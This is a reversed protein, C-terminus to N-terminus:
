RATIGALILTRSAQYPSGLRDLAEATALLAARNDEALAVARATIAAAVPNHASDTTARAIAAAATPVEALVSAEAMLASQWGRWLGTHFTEAPPPLSTLRAHAQDPLNQHLLYLADFFSTFTGEAGRRHDATLDQAIRQWAAYEKADGRMGYIAAAAYAGRSLTAHVPRGARQWGTRFQDALEIAEDWDGTLADVILLRASALHGDEQAFPLQLVQEAYSRAAALDGNALATDAAASLADAYEYGIPDVPAPLATLLDVRRRATIMAAPLARHAVQTETLRDLAVSLDAPDSSRKALEVAQASNQVSTPDSDPLRYVSAIAIRAQAVPDSGALDTARHLWSEVVDPDPPTAIIGAGRYVLEVATALDRAADAPRGGAVAAEAAAQLLRLADDGLHRRHAVEAARHLAAAAIEDSPALGAAQEYRHQSEQPRGLRFTVAGLRDALVYADAHHATRQAAWSLAARLDNLGADGHALDLCWRMHRIASEDSEGSEALQGAGYQRVTELARHRSDPGYLTPAVLSQDTLRALCGAVAAADVPPWAAVERAAAITFPDPFVSIRRLLAQDVPDLLQYSWDLTARMSHHRVDNRRRSTLLGLSDSLSAQLGNLGLSPVRAAALEIALAIGDLEACIQEVRTRDLVDPAGAAAAREGFLTAADGGALSLGPVVFVKEFPLLLRSRSTALVALQDGGALLREVLEAVSDVLHECNDLVLLTHRTSFWTILADEASRTRQPVGLTEAVALALMDGSAVPVLDVYCAGDPFAPALDAAVAVALRTKGVGGPGVATVLRHGRVVAALEAREAARGIFGTLPQPLRGGFPAPSTPTLVNVAVRGLVRRNEVALKRLLSAVHTEVTRVSIFLQEAIEANTLHDRVGALVEAERASIAPLPTNRTQM